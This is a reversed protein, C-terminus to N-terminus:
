DLRNVIRQQLRRLRQRERALLREATARAKRERDALERLKRTAEQAKRTAEQAKRAAEQAEKRATVARTKEDQAKKLAQELDAYSRKLNTEATRLQKQGQTAVVEAKQRLKEAESKAREAASREREKRQILGLQDKIKKEARRAIDAKDLARKEAARVQLWAAVAGAALLALTAIVAGLLWRKRRTNRQALQFVADLYDEELSPIPGLYNRHWFRAEEEADGRWLMGQPRGKAHWQKATNRLHELYETDDKHEDIWRRLTPWRSILSEHVIEVASGVAESRTVVVLLREQVLYDVIRRIEDGGSDGEGALEQLDAVDVIARTGDATVLRRFIARVIKQDSVSLATLVADAHTALAGAVGGMKQFARKTLVRKGRDREEWLKTAAFQLLPLAGPTAELAALMEDVITDVEYRYGVSELPLTIADRLGARSPTQLFILGRTLEEMFRTSETARDLLDSRMSVVVRLPTAPDDAVGALCDTFALREAPDDCLTYLEEFQDVFLLVSANKQRAHRRLLSGLHGPQERLRRLLADHEDVRKAVDSTSSATISQLLSALASLPARGPRTGFMEWAEGSLKLAPVLGARVFSSKGVGSPGVVAVFPRERVSKAARVIDRTRGFFRGADTEQFAALGPFPSEDQSLTRGSRGPLLPELEDLLAKASPFRDDARKALCRDIIHELASPLDSVAAGVAPMPEDMLAAQSMIQVPGMGKFPHQGTVMEFLMLGVAWLDTRGDVVGGGWQEPAMYHMTGLIAGERTLRLDHVSELASQLQQVSPRKEESFVRAIGFDLVKIAGTDLVFVNDPKLDRHVINFEHARILARVVPVVMEVARKAPIREGDLWRALPRGSLHELVMFPRGDHDGVEHIVVINEHSCKATAQAEVLFRERIAESRTNLFKIAVRRGLKTDRALYVQGMGGRGLLRIIEYQNVRSGADYIEEDSAAPSEGLAQEKLSHRTSILAPDGGKLAAADGAPGA